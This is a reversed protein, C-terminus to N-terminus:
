NLVEIQQKTQLIANILEQPMDQSFLIEVGVVEGKEDLDFYRDNGAPITKAVKKGEKLEIYLAKAEPDYTM